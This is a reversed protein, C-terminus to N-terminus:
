SGHQRGQGQIAQSMLLFLIGNKPELSLEAPFAGAGDHEPRPNSGQFSWYQNQRAVEADEELQPGAPPAHPKHPPHARSSATFGWETGLEPHGGQKNAEAMPPSDGPDLTLLIPSRHTAM